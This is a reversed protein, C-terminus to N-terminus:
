DAIARAMMEPDINGGSIICAITEGSWKEGAKLMAALAVAGGPEAVVKLEQFAFRVADLAEQDSVILGECLLNKSIDFAMQGASETIIADCISGTLKPNKQITGSELSLRFDDFNEPEVSHIKVNPFHHSIAMSVGATLGGGGTCVLVRDITNHGANAAQEVIELGITGQGAVVLPHNFPHIFSAGTEECIKLAIADRDENERDYMIVTAGFAKTRELKITPSDEPMVITSSAGLLQAAHAVGQAHNGSSCAVVGSRRQEASLGSIANFAGRFKFSGTVQLCEPKILVKAGSIENLVPSELMPTIRAHGLITQAANKIDTYEPIKIM